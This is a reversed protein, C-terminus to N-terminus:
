KGGAETKIREIIPPVWAKITECLKILNHPDYVIYLYTSLNFPLSGEAKQILILAPKGLGHAYGLEYIVNPYKGTLDAIVFDSRRIQEQLADLIPHTAAPFDEWLIPRVNIELLTDAILRRLAAFEGDFPTALYCTYTHEEKVM